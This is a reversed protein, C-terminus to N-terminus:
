LGDTIVMLIFLICMIILGLFLKLPNPAFFYADSMDTKTKFGFLKSIKNLIESLRSM